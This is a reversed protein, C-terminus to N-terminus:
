WFQLWSLGFNELPFVSRHYLFIAGANPQRRLEHRFNCLIGFFHSEVIDHHVLNVVIGQFGTLHLPVGELRRVLLSGGLALHPVERPISFTGGRVPAAIRMPEVRGILQTMFFHQTYQGPSSEVLHELSESFRVIQVSQLHVTKSENSDRVTVSPVDMMIKFVNLPLDKINEKFNVSGFVNTGFEHELACVLLPTCDFVPLINSPDIPITRFVTRVHTVETGVTSHTKRGSNEEGIDGLSINVNKGLIISGDKWGHACLLQPYPCGAASMPKLVAASVTQCIVLAPNCQCHLVAGLSTRHFM